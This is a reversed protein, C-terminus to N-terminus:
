NQAVDKMSFSMRGMKDKGLCVVTVRDRICMQKLTIMVKNEGVGEMTSLLEELSHELSVVYAERTDEM